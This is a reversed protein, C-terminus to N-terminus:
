LAQDFIGVHRLFNAVKLRYVRHTSSPFIGSNFHKPSTSSHIPRKRGGRHRKAIRIFSYFLVTCHLTHSGSMPRGPGTGPVQISPRGVPRM